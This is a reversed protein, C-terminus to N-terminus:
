KTVATVTKWFIRLLQQGIILIHRLIENLGDHFGVPRSFIEDCVPYQFFRAIKFTGVSAITYRSMLHRYTNVTQGHFGVTVIETLTGNLTDHLPDLGFTCLDNDILWGQFVAAPEESAKYDIVKRFEFIVALGNNCVAIAGLQVVYFFLDIRSVNKLSVSIFLMHLIQFFRCYFRSNATSM